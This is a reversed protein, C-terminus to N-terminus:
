RRVLPALLPRLDPLDELRGALDILAAQQAPVLVGDTLTRAKSALEDWTLPNRPSGKADPVHAEHHTGDALRLNVHAGWHVPFAAELADDGVCGVAAALRRVEPDAIVADTYEPLSARGHRVAVAVAYPLSFQADVVNRPAARLARPEAVIALSSTPVRVTAGHVDRPSLRRARVIQLTADIAAHNYRCCAHPKVACALVQWERGLGALVRSATAGESYARFFGREGEIVAAPGTLGEAALHAAVIGAHAALGPHARKVAAGDDLYQMSGAALSGAIGLAHATRDADLGLLRAAVAAAAFTGCTATPHFGRAYHARVNLAEGLRGIVEYGLIAAVVMDAPPAKGAEAMALATPFVVVGPHLSSEETVDDMEIAHAAAANALAAYQPRLGREGGVVTAPGPGSLAAAARRATDATETRAAAAAVALFDLALERLRRRAADPVDELRLTAGFRALAQAITAM